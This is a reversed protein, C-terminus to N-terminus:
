RLVKPFNMCAYASDSLTCCVVLFAGFLIFKGASWRSQNSEETGGLTVVAYMMLHLPMFFRVEVAVPIVALTLLMPAAVVAALVMRDTRLQSLKRCASLFLFIISYNILSLWWNKEYPNKIYVSPFKVDLGSFLHRAYITVFEVPYKAYLRVIDGYSSIRQSAAISKGTPDGFIVQSDPYETGVNTEFKQLGFGVQLQFFYLDQGYVLDAPRFLSTRQYIHHNIYVQPGIVLCLGLVFGACHAYVSSKSHNRWTHRLRWLLLVSVPIGAILYVPRFNVALGLLLGPLIGYVSTKVLCLAGLLACLAPIDTLPYNAHGRFFLFVLGNFALLRWFRPKCAPVAIKVLTPVIITGLTAMLLSSFSWFVVREDLHLWGALQRMLFCLYPFSYGRYPLHYDNLSYSTVSGWYVGADYHFVPDASTMLFAFYGACVIAFALYRQQVKTLAVRGSFALLGGAFARPFVHLNRATM